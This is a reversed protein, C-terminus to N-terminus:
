AIFISFLSNICLILCLVHVCRWWQLQGPTKYNGAEIQSEVWASNSEQPCSGHWAWKRPGYYTIHCLIPTWIADVSCIFSYIFSGLSWSSNRRLDMAMMQGSKGTQQCCAQSSRELVRRMELTATCGGGCRARYGDRAWGPAARRLGRPGRPLTGTSGPTLAWVGTVDSVWQRM